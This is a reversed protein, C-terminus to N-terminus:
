DNLLNIEGKSQMLTYVFMYTTIRYMYDTRAEIQYQYQHTQIPWRNWQRRDRGKIKHNRPSTM